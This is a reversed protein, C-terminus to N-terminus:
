LGSEAMKRAITDDSKERPEVALSLNYLTEEDRSSQLHTKIFEQIDPVLQLMYPTSQYQQLERIVEGTKMRKAFNILNNTKKLFNSNGDEIFTLDQLYIGLFPICPPNVKHIIDRYETFNRNAGMLRRIGDLIDNTRASMTRWTRKLRGVSSNDFASLIAMCTNYNHLLRCKEAVYIWHKVVASRKKLEEKSLISDTVWATVQNSYEISAKVNAATHQSDARGWNKDLCEVPKIRSYLKFDMVTLQRALELPDIELFRLRKMNKPLIPPPIETPRVNLTMKRLQSSDEANIRKQIAKGLQEAGFQMSERIVNESFNLLTPLMVRDEEEIYYSDLWSKIVNSVRLRVLKLKKENWMELDEGSLEPPPKLTYRAFLAEFLQETTCFSRYTLLFTTIFKSDLQDHQTLRQVLATVTGGKVNGEMNFIIENPMYDACLYDAKDNKMMMLSGNHGSITSTPTSVTGTNISASGSAVTNSTTTTSSSGIGSQAMSASAGSGLITDRRKAAMLTDEGFFKALKDKPARPPTATSEAPLINESNNYMSLSPTESQYSDVDMDGDNPFLSPSYGSQHPHYYSSSSTSPPYKASSPPSHYPYPAQPTVLSAKRGNIRASTDTPHIGDFESGFDGGMIDNDAYVQDLIDSTTEHEHITTPRSSPTPPTTGRTSNTTTSFQSPSASPKNNAAMTVDLCITQVNREIEYICDELRQYTTKIAALILDSNTITQSAILLLGMANYIAQRAPYRNTTGDHRTSGRRQQHHPQYQPPLDDVANLFQSATNSLNRFQAVLLPATTKVKAPASAQDNLTAFANRASEMFSSMAGRINDALVMLTTSPDPKNTNNSSALRWRHGNSSLSSPQGNSTTTTTSSSSTSLSVSLSGVGGNNNIDSLLLKPKDDYIELRLDQATSLFNRVDVLLQDADLQLKHLADDQAWTGSAAKSSLVTKALSALLARHYIRLPKNCKLHPSSEKDVTNSVYLMLRIRHVVTAADNRLLAINGEKISKKLAHIAHAILKSLQNWNLPLLEQTESGTTSTSDRPQPTNITNLYGTQPDVQDLSWTTEDTMLNCYYTRGKTDVKRVWHPPLPDPDSINRVNTVNTSGNHSTDTIIDMNGTAHHSSASPLYHSPDFQADTPLSYRMEKTVQNYYYVESGDETTQLIWDSKATQNKLLGEDHHMSRHVMDDDIIDLRSPQIRTPIHQLSSQQSAPSSRDQISGADPEMTHDTPYHMDTTIEQVYNSPFWGRQGNCWGDWWGSELKALVHIIDGQNFSLSAPDTSTYNYLGQVSCLSDELDM